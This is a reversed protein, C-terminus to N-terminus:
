TLATGHIQVRPLHALSSSSDSTKARLRAVLDKEREAVGFRQGGARGGDAEDPATVNEAVDVGHVGRRHLEASHQAVTAMREDVEHDARIVELPTFRRPQPGRHANDRAAGVGLEDLACELGAAQTQLVRLSRPSSLRRSELTFARFALADQRRAKQCDAIPSWKQITGPRRAISAYSM